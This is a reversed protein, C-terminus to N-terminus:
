GTPPFTRLAVVPTLYLVPAMVPVMVDVPSLVVTRKIKSSYSACEGPHIVQSLTSLYNMLNWFLDKTFKGRM